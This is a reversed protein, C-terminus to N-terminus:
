STEQGGLKVLSDKEDDDDDDLEMDDTQKKPEPQSPVREPLKVAQSIPKPKSQAKRLLSPADEKTAIWDVARSGQVRRPLTSVKEPSEFAPAEHTKEEPLKMEPVKEEPVNEKPVKVKASARAVEGPRHRKNLFAIADDDLEDLIGANDFIQQWVPEKRAELWLGNLEQFFYHFIIFFVSFVHFCDFFYSM